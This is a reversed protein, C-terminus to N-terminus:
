DAGYTRRGYEAILAADIIGDHPKRSRETALFSQNPWLKKAVTDESGKPYGKLIKRKWEQPTVEVLPLRLGLVVGKVLGFGMGFTFTSRVGQKPM